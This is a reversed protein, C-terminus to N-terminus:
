KKAQLWAIDVAYADRIERARSGTANARYNRVANIHRIASATSMNKRQMAEGLLRHRYAASYIAKSTPNVLRYPTMSGRRIRWFGPM